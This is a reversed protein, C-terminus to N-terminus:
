AECYCLLCLLLLSPPLTDIHPTGSRLLGWRCVWGCVLWDIALYCWSVDESGNMQDIQASSWKRTIQLYLFLFDTPSLVVSCPKEWEKDSVAYLWVRKPGLLCLVLSLSLVLQGPCWALDGSVLSGPFQQRPLSSVLPLVANLVLMPDKGVFPILFTCAFPRQM